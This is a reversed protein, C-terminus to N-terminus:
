RTICRGDSLRGDVREGTGGTAVARYGIVCFPGDGAAYVISGHVAIDDARAVRVVADRYGAQRLARLLTRVQDSAPADPNLVARSVAQEVRRGVGDAQRRQETSLGARAEVRVRVQGLCTAPRPYPYVDLNSYAVAVQEGPLPGPFTCGLRGAVLVASGQGTVASAANSPVDPQGGGAARNVVLSVIALAATLAALLV